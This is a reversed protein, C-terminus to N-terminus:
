GLGYGLGSAAEGGRRYRIWRAITAHSWLCPGGGCSKLMALVYLETEQIEENTTGYADCFWQDGMRSVAGTGDYTRAEPNSDANVVGSKRGYYHAFVRLVPVHKWGPAQGAVIGCMRQLNQAERKALACQPPSDTLSMKALARHLLGVLLYTEEGNRLIPVFEASCYELEGVTACYRLKPKLKMKTSIFEEVFECYAPMKDPPLGVAGVNDDGLAIMNLSVYVSHHQCYCAHAWDHATFNNTTNSVSTNQTGSKRTYEVVFAHWNAFGKTKAAADLYEKEDPSPTFRTLFDIEAALCGAGQTSDYESFDDMFFGMGQNEMDAVWQGAREASGGSTYCFKPWMRTAGVDDIDVELYAAALAKAVGKVFPGAILNVVPHRPGMIGRPKKDVMKGDLPPVILEIKMFVSSEKALSKVRDVPLPELALKRYNSRKPEDQSEVWDTRNIPKYHPKALAALQANTYAAARHWTEISLEDVPAAKLHRGLMRRENSKSKAFSAAMLPTFVPGVLSTPTLSVKEDDANQYTVLSVGEPVPEIAAISELRSFCADPPGPTTCYTWEDEVATKTRDVGNFSEVEEFTTVFDIVEIKPVHGCLHLPVDQSVKKCVPPVPAPPGVSVVIDTAPTAPYRVAPDSGIAVAVSPCGHDDVLPVSVSIPKRKCCRRNKCNVHRTFALLLFVVFVAVLLEPLFQVDGAGPISLVGLLATLVATAKLLLKITSMVSTPPDPVLRMADAHVRFHAAQEGLHHLVQTEEELGQLFCVVATAKVVAARDMPTVSTRQVRTGLTSLLGKFVSETRAKFSMYQLGHAVLDKPLVTSFGKMQLIINSGEAVLTGAALGLWSWQAKTAQLKVNEVMAVVAPDPEFVVSPDFTTDQSVPLVFLYVFNTGCEDIRQWTLKGQSVTATGATLWAVDPHTYPENGRVCMKITGRSKTWTAEEDNGSPNFVGKTGEFIHTVAAGLFYERGDQCLTKKLASLHDAVGQPGLSYLAHVLLLGHSKKYKPCSGPKNCCASAPFPRSFLIRPIDARTRIPMCCHVRTHGCDAMRRPAGYPVAIQKRGVAARLHKMAKYEAVARDLHLCSHGGGVKGVPLTGFKVPLHAYRKAYVDALYHTMIVVEGEGHTAAAEQAPEPQGPSQTKGVQSQPPTAPAAVAVVKAKAKTKTKPQVQGTATSVIPVLAPVLDEDTAAMPSKDEDVAAAAHTPKSAKVTPPGKFGLGGRM